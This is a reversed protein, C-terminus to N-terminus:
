HLKLPNREYQQLFLNGTGLPQPGSRRDCKVQIRVNAAVVIDTGAVQIDVTECEKTELWFPFKGRRICEIVCAVALNGKEVTSMGPKFESWRPWSEFRLTRLDDIWEPKVLWGIATVGDAGPQSASRRKPNYRDIAARGAATKFVYVARNMVSVHARIDSNENQIGYEVLDTSM